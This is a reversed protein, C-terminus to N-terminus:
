NAPHLEAAVRQQVTSQAEPSIGLATLLTHAMVSNGLANMHVGDTTLLLDRAGTGRRYSQILSRFPKQYNVFITHHKAAIDELARNYAEAKRNEANTLNEGIVTASLIVIQAGAKEGQSVMQEVNKRYDVLPIGNPGDGKSHNDFFGHWVDNVGVSITVLDPKKEVVDREFRALMDTSKHGSIGANIVEIGANPYLNNLYHRVLWVYGGPHEGQETISDGLCVIRKVGSLAKPVSNVVPQAEQGLVGVALATLGLALLLKVIM